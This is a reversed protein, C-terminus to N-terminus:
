IKHGNPWRSIRVTKQKSINPIFFIFIEFYALLLLQIKM